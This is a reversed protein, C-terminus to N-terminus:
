DTTQTDSNGEKRKQLEAYALFLPEVDTMRANRANDFLQEISILAVEIHETDDLEQGGPHPTCDTALFFHWTCNTYADKVVDGLFIMAGAHYGTEETFERRAAQEFDEGAEVAGGPLEDLIREQAPRFQRSVVVKNEKTLAITAVAHSGEPGVTQYHHVVSDPMVFTKTIITKHGIRSVVTPEIREWPKM